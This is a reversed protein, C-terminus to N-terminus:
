RLGFCALLGGLVMVATGIFGALGLNSGLQELTQPGTTIGSAPRTTRIDIVDAVITVLMAAAGFVALLFIVRVQFPERPTPYEAIDAHGDFLTPTEATVPPAFTDLQTTAQEDVGVSPPLLEVPETM